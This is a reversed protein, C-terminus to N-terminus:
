RPNEGPKFIIIVLITRIFQSRFLYAQTCSPLNAYVCVCVCVSVHCM